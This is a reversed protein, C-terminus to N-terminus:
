NAYLKYSGHTISIIMLERLCIYCKFKQLQICLTQIWIDEFANSFAWKNSKSLLNKSIVLIKNPDSDNERHHITISYWFIKSTAIRFLYSSWPRSSNIYRCFNLIRMWAHKTWSFTNIEYENRLGNKGVIIGLFALYFINWQSLPEVSTNECM